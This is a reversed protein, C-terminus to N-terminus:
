GKEMLEIVREAGLYDIPPATPTFPQQLFERFVKPEPLGTESFAKNKYNLTGIVDGVRTGSVVEPFEEVMTSSLPAPTSPLYKFPLTSDEPYIRIVRYLNDYKAHFKDFCLEHWVYFMMLIFCAMGVALGLINILSFGKHRKINRLGVILYNRFM